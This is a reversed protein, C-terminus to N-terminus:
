LHLIDAAAAGHELRNTFDILQDPEILIAVEFVFENVDIVVNLL